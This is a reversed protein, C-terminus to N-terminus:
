PKSKGPVPLSQVVDKFTAVKVSFSPDLAILVTLVLWIIGAGKMYEAATGAFGLPTRQVLWIVILPVVAILGTKIQTLARSQWSTQIVLQEPELREMHDWHGAAAHMLNTAIRRAFLTQTDSRPVCIWRKYGRLAAAMCRTESKLWAHTALDSSQLQRPLGQELAEAADELLLMMKRKRRVDAWEQPRAEAMALTELLRDFVIADAYRLRLRRKLIYGVILSLLFTGLLTVLLGISNLIFLMVALKGRDLPVSVGLVYPLMWLQTWLLLSLWIVEVVIGLWFNLKVLRLIVSILYTSVMIILMPFLAANVAFLIGNYVRRLHLAGLDFRLLIFLSSGAITVLLGTLLLRMFIAFITAALRADKIAVIAQRHQAPRRLMDKESASLTQLRDFQVMRGKIQALTKQEGFLIQRKFRDTGPIIAAWRDRITIIQNKLWRFPLLAVFVLAVWFRHKPKRRFLANLALKDPGIKM